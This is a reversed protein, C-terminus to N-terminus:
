RHKRKRTKLERYKAITIGLAAAEDREKDNFRKVAARNLLAPAVKRHETCYSRQKRGQKSRRSAAERARTLAEERSKPPSYELAAWDPFFFKGCGQFQCKCLTTGPGAAGLLLWTAYSFNAVFGHVEVMRFKLTHGSAPDVVFTAHDAVNRILAPALDSAVEMRATRNHASAIRHLHSRWPEPDPVLHREAQDGSFQLWTSRKLPRGNAVDLLAMIRGNDSMQDQWRMWQVWPDSLFQSVPNKRYAEKVEAMDLKGLAHTRQSEYANVQTM